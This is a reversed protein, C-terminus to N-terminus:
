DEMEERDFAGRDEALVWSAVEGPGGSAIGLVVYHFFPLAHERDYDSPVAPHDPHSHYFGLLVRGREEALRELRLYDESLIRFRRHRSGAQANPVPEVQTVRDVKEEKQGLLAGCCEEPYASRGHARIADRLDEPLAIM